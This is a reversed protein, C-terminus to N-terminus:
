VSIAPTFTLFASPWFHSHRKEWNIVFLVCNKYYLRLSCRNRCWFVVYDYIYGLFHIACSPQFSWLSWVRKERFSSYRPYGVRARLYEYLIGEHWSDNWKTLKLMLILLFALLCGINFDTYIHRLNRLTGWHGDVERFDQDWVAHWTLVGCLCQRCEWRYM